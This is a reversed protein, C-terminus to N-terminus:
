PRPPLSGVTVSALRTSPRMPCCCSAAPGRRSVSSRRAAACLRSRRMAGANPKPRSCAAMATSSTAVLLMAFAIRASAIDLGAEALTRTILYLLGVRDPCTIEIVTHTDSLHNRITVRPPAEVGPPPKRGGPRAALLDEVKRDGRLVARLDDLTRISDATLGLRQFLARYHPSFPLVVDRLYRHLQKAQRARLEASPLPPWPHRPNTNM